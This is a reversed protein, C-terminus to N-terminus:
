HGQRSFKRSATQTPLTTSGTASRSVTVYFDTSDAELSTITEFQLWNYSSLALNPVPQSQSRFPESPLNVSKVNLGYTFQEQLSNLLDHLYVSPEGVPSDPTDRTVGPIIIHVVRSEYHMNGTATSLTTINQGVLQIFIADNSNIYYGQAEFASSATPSASVIRNLSLSRNYAFATPSPPFDPRRTKVFMPVRGPRGTRLEVTPLRLITPRGLDVQSSFSSSSAWTMGPASNTIVLRVTHFPKFTWTTYHMLGTINYWDGDNPQIVISSNYRTMAENISCGTVVAVGDRSVDQLSVHWSALSAPSTRVRIEFSPFGNIIMEGDLYNSTVIVTGEAQMSQNGPLPGWSYGLQFGTTADYPTTIVNPEEPRNEWFIVNAIPWGVYQWKGTLAGSREPVGPQPPSATPNYFASSGAAIPNRIFMVVDPERMFGNDEDALWQKFWSAADARGSFPLELNFSSEEPWSYDFPGLVVKTKPTTKLLTEYLNLAFDKHENYLGGILYVPVKIESPNIALPQWFDDNTQHEMYKFIYPSSQVINYRNQIYDADLAYQPSAPLSALQEVLAKYLNPQFNGDPFADDWFESQAAHLAVVTKIHTPSQQAALLALTASSGLGFIGVQGNSGSIKSFQAALDIADNVDQQSLPFSPRPTNANVGTGRSNVQVVILGRAAFDEAARQAILRHADQPRKNTLEFVVPRKVKTDVPQTVVAGVQTGDALTFTASSSTIPLLRNQRSELVISTILIAVLAVSAAVAVWFFLSVFREAATVKPKVQNALYDNHHGYFMPETEEPNTDGMGKLTNVLYEDSGNSEIASM